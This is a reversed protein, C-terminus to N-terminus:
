VGASFMGVSLISALSTGPFGLVIPAGDVQIDAFERLVVDGSYHKEFACKNRKYYGSSQRIWEKSSKASAPASGATAPPPAATAEATAAAAAAASMAGGFKDGAPM